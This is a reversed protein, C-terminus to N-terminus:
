PTPPESRAARKAVRDESEELIAEAQKRADDSSREEPPRGKARSEVKEPDPKSSGLPSEGDHEHKDEGM